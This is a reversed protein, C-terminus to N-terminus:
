SGSLTTALGSILTAERDIAAAARGIERDVDQWQGQEIAERVGPITKVGYGTYFGPAYLMHVYWPRNKLGETTTLAREAQILRENVASAVSSRGSSVASSYARDYRAAASKLSDLANLLPAFNLQPAPQQRQPAAIPDRPDSTFRYYGEDIARNLDAIQEARR